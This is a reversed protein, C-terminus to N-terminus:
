LLDIVEAVKPVKASRSEAKDDPHQKTAYRKKKEELLKWTGDSFFEVRDRQANVQPAYQDAISKTLPCHVLEYLSILENNCVPCEWSTGTVRQNCDIFNQLDFCQFHSCRKARVPTRMLTSSIACTLKFIFSQNQDEEEEDSDVVVMNQATMKRAIKLAEKMTLADMFKEMIEDYLIAPTQFKCIAICIAYPKDEYCCADVTIEQRFDPIMTASADFFHSLGSWYDKDHGQQRRQHIPMPLGNISLLTGKPWLHIDARAKFKGKEPQRSPEQLPLMHVLLRTEDQAYPHQRPMKWGKIQAIQNPTLRFKCGVVRKVPVPSVKRLDCSDPQCTQQLILIEEMKWYPYWTALRSAIQKKEQPTMNQPTHVTRILPRPTLGGYFKSNDAPFFIERPVSPLNEPLALDPTCVRSRAPSRPPTREGAEQEGKKSRNQQTPSDKSAAVLRSSQASGMKTQIAVSASGNPISNSANSLLAPLSISSSSLRDPKPVSSQSAQDTRPTRSPITQEGQFPDVTPVPFSVPPLLLPSAQSTPVTTSSIAPLGQGSRQLPRAQTRPGKTSATEAGGSRQLPRAQVGTTLPSTVNLL